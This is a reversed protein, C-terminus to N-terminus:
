AKDRFRLISFFDCLLFYWFFVLYVTPTSRSNNNKNIKHYEILSCQRCSKVRLVRLSFEFCSSSSSAGCCAILNKHSLGFFVVVVVTVFAVIAVVCLLQLSLCFAITERM